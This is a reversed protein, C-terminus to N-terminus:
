AAPQASEAGEGAQQMLPPSLVAFEVGEITDAQEAVRRLRRAFHERYLAIERLTGNRRTQAAEILRDFREFDNIRRRQAQALVHDMTLGTRALIADVEAIADPERVAWRKVLQFYDPVSRGSLVETLGEHACVTLLAAKLRRQRVSEWVDDGVERVWIEELPDSPGVSQSIRAVLTDYASANDNLTLPARGLFDLTAPLNALDTASM